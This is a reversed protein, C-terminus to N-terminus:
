YWEEPSAVHLWDPKNGIKFDFRLFEETKFNDIDDVNIALNEFKEMSLNVTNGNKDISNIYLAFPIFVENNEPDPVYYEKSEVWNIALLNIKMRTEVEFTNFFNVIFKKFLENNPETLSSYGKVNKIDLNHCNNIDKINKLKYDSLGYNLYRETVQLLNM